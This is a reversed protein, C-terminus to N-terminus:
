GGELSESSSTSRANRRVVGGGSRQLDTNNNNSNNDILEGSFNKEMFSAKRLMVTASQLDDHVPKGTMDAVGGQLLCPTLAGVVLLAANVLLLQVPNDVLAGNVFQAILAGIRASAACIGWGTSRVLTPFLESTMTDITNWSVVTFCQFLCASAVIGFSTEQSASVAFVVLSASACAISTILSTSRQVTDLFIAALVNGPLNAAAFLLANFYINELHVKEFIINIWTMLGYSGFSLSFWVLKLALTTRRLSPEYLKSTSSVFESGATHLFGMVQYCRSTSEFGLRSHNQRQRDELDKLASAPFTRELEEITLPLVPSTASGGASMKDVLSNAIEVAEQSRGELGLFRPSEPIWLYVLTAGLASPFSCILAFVRWTTGLYALVGTAAAEALAEDDQAGVSSSSSSDGTGEFCWLAVLAVYISGVMWFSAIVTTCFGRASPPALETALTFLPPITSGIGFGALLRLLSMLYFNPALAFLVGAVANCVLGLLLMPKRGMWDGMTGVLLGGLLMGLFVAAALLGAGHDGQVTEQFIPDALIYSICLIETADSSNAVGLALMLCWYKWQNCLARLPIRHSGSSTANIRRDSAVVADAGALDGDMTGGISSYSTSHAMSPEPSPSLSISNPTTQGKTAQFGAELFDDLNRGSLRSPKGALEDQHQEQDQDQHSAVDLSVKRPIPKISIEGDEDRFRDCEDEDGGM